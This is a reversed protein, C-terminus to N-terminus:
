VKLLISITTLSDASSCNMVGSHSQILSDISSPLIESIPDSATQTISGLYGDSTPAASYDASISAIDGNCIMHIKLYRKEIPLRCCSAIASIAINGCITSIDSRSEQPVIETDDIRIDSKIDNETALDTFYRTDSVPADLREYLKKEIFVQRRLTDLNRILEKQSISKSTLAVLNLFAEVMSLLIFINLGILFAPSLQTFFHFYYNAIEIVICCLFITYPLHMLHGYMSNSSLSFKIAIVTLSIITLMGLIHFPYLTVTFQLVGSFQLIAACVFFLADAILLFKIFRNKKINMLDTTFMIIPIPIFYFTLYNIIYLLSPKQSTYITLINGSICWAGALASFIGLWFLSKDQISDLSYTFISIFIMAAGLIIDILSVVYHSGYESILSQLIARSTGICPASILAEARSNPFYYIMTINIKENGSPTPLLCSDSFSAPDTFYSPYSEHQGGQYILHGDAYISVPSYISSFYISSGAVNPVNFSVMIPSGPSLSRITTPLAFVDDTTSTTIKATNIVTPKSVEPESSNIKFFLVLLTLVVIFCSFPIIWKHNAKAKIM